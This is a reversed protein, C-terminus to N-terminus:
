SPEKLEVNIKDVVVDRDYFPGIDYYHIVKEEAKTIYFGREDNIVSVDEPLDVNYYHYNAEGIIKIGLMKYIEGIYEEADYKKRYKQPILNLECKIPLMSSRSVIKRAVKTGADTSEDNSAGGMRLAVTMLSALNAGTDKPEPTKNKERLWLKYHEKFGYIYECSDKDYLSLFFDVREESLPIYRITEGKNIVAAQWFEVRGRDGMPAKRTLLEESFSKINKPDDNIVRILFSTSTVSKPFDEMVPTDNQICMALYYRKSRFRKPTIELFENRHGPGGKYAFCRAGLVYLEKTLVKPKRKAVSYFWDDFDGRRDVYRADISRLMACMVLEEDILEIPMWEFDNQEFELSYYTTEMHDKFFQKDFLELNNKAYERVDEDAQCGTLAHLLFERTRLSEPVDKFTKRAYRLDDLYRCAIPDRPYNASNGRTYGKMNFKILLLRYEPMEKISISM